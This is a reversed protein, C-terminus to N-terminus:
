EGVVIRIGKSARSILPALPPANLEANTPAICSQPM